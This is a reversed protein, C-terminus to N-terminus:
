WANTPGFILLILLALKCVKCLIQLMKRMRMADDGNKKFKTEVMILVPYKQVFFQDVTM